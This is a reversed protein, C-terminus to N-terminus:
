SIIKLSEIKPITINTEFGDNNQSSVSIEGGISKVREEIGSIGFGKNFNSSGIGNDKIYLYLKDELFQLSVTINSAKGHRVSNSLSEQVVRYLVFSQDSNLKWTEKSVIFKVNVGSMKEFNTVLDNLAFIGEYNDFDTPKLKHVARRVNEIGNKTYDVLEAIMKEGANLDSKMVFPVAQLQILLTSLTHGVSDHLERSIRNRERLTTLEEISKSYEELKECAIKLNEESVRLKDYLGQAEKKRKNEEEIYRGLAGFSFVILTNFIVNVLTYNQIKSYIPKASQIMVAIYFIAISIYSYMKPLMLAGDLVSIFYYVFVFGGFSYYLITIIILDMLLSGLIFYVKDSLYYIRIQTNIVYLLMCVTLKLFSEKSYNGALVVSTVVMFYIIYRIPILIPYKM